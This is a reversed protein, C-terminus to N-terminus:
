VAGLQEILETIAPHRAAGASPLLAVLQMRPPAPSLSLARVRGSRLDEAVAYHPLIGLASTDADVGRKVGDISGVAELRPGPLGDAAFYRRILEHFDGASDAVFMPFSAIADRPLALHQAGRVLPHKKGAFIVLPIDSALVIATVSDDPRRTKIGERSGATDGYNELLLGLNCQRETVSSRVNACTAVTVAFRTNPWQKRLLGLAPTLIFTSVSENAVVDITANARHTVAAIALHVADLDQLMRRAHPLLAKGADTLATEHAGRRRLITQVGVARDLAALAESVTSQALGLAVAAGSVSGHAVVALFARLQRIELTSKSGDPVTGEGRETM